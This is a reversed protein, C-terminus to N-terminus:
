HMERWQKVKWLWAFIAFIVLYILFKPGLEEREAKKSDGVEELYSIVQTEAQKTLGVRPMATGELHKQPNNIFEHLYEHGRSRIYQSLDPPYKGMYGKINADPTFAAMSGGKMDGYKISHCRQCADAYVEKNTMEEPAISQLYAVIDAIEQPQMWDYGPMPHVKGDTYKHSVNSAKAPNKIFAALYDANYLKGATSLDPPVVGYAAASSANDMLAPFNAKEIGHCATCNSQVLMAGDSANGKLGNLGDVDKFEYDPAEVHPHMQSHAFPEVGWYTILTLAVVVALIKLERM